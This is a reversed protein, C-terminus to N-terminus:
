ICSQLLSFYQQSTPKKGTLVVFWVPGMWNLGYIDSIEAALTSSGPCGPQTKKVEM